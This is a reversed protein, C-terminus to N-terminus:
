EFDAVRLREGKFEQIEEGERLGCKAFHEKISTGLGGEAHPKRERVVRQLLERVFAELSKDNDSAMERLQQHVEDDINRILFQAM